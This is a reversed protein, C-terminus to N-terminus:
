YTILPVHCLNGFTRLSYLSVKRTETGGSRKRRPWCDRPNEGLSQRDYTLVALPINNLNNVGNQLKNLVFKKIEAPYKM